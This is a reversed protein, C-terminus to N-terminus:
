RLFYNEIEKMGNLFDTARMRKKGALQLEDIALLTGQGAVVAMTNRSVSLITGAV